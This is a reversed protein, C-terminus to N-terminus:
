GRLAAYPLASKKDDGFPGGCKDDGFPDIPSGGSDTMGTYVPM